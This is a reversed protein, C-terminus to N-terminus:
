AIAINMDRLFKAARKDGTEAVLQDETMTKGAVKYEATTNRIPKINEWGDPTNDQLQQRVDKLVGETIPIYHDYPIFISAANDPGIGTKVVKSKNQTIVLYPIDDGNEDKIYRVASIKGKITGGDVEKSIKKATRGREDVEEYKGYSTVNNASLTITSKKMGDPLPVEKYEVKDGGSVDFSIPEALSLDVDAIVDKKKTTAPQKKAIPETENIDPYQDKFMEYAYDEPEMDDEVVGQEIAEAYREDVYKQFKPNNKYFSKIKGSANRMRTEMTTTGELKKSKEIAGVKQSALFQYPDFSPVLANYYSEREELPKEKIKELALISEEKDYKDDNSAIAAFVKKYEDEDEVVRKALMMLGYKDKQYKSQVAYPIDGKYKRADEALENLYKDRRQILEANNRSGVNTFTVDALEQYRKIKEQEDLIKAEGIKQLANFGQSLSDGIQNQPVFNINPVQPFM